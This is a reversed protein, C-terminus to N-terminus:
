DVSALLAAARAGIREWSYRELAAARANRGRRRREEPAEVAALIAAALAGADEPPVLWGTEGDAVVDKLGGSAAAIVPRGMQAAQLAVLGFPEPWRSPVIMATATNILAHVEEPAVMGTFCISDGLGLDHALRELGPQQDGGGAIVMTAGSGRGRLLAFAKIAVDFGKDQVLRGLCLLRPPAFPLETPALAPMPLANQIVAAKGVAEPLETRFVEYQAHSVLVLRDADGALRSQLGPRSRARVPSHITLVRPTAGTAGGRLFLLSGFGTDNLHILEPGFAQHVSRLEAEVRRMVPFNRRGIALNFELRMLDIGAVVAPGPSDPVAETVVLM